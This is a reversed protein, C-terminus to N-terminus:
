WGFHDHENDASVEAASEAVAVDFFESGFATDFDIVDGDVAPDM